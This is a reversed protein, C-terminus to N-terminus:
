LGHPRLSDSVVWHSFSLLLHINLVFFIVQGLNVAPSCSPLDQSWTQSSGPGVSRIQISRLRGRLLVWRLTLADATWGLSGREDAVSELFSMENGGWSYLTIKEHSAWILDHYTFTISSSYILQLIDIMRKSILHRTALGQPKGPLGSLFSDVQMAPFRLEIGSDPLDGRSPYPLGSWYEQRSFEM